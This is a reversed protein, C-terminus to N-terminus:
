KNMKIQTFYMKLYVHLIFITVLRYQFCCKLSILPDFKYFLYIKKSLKYISIYKYFYVSQGNHHAFTTAFLVLFSFNSMVMKIKHIFTQSCGNDFQKLQLPHM